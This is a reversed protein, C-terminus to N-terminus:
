ITPFCAKNEVSILLRLYTCNLIIYSLINEKEHLQDIKKINYNFFIYKETGTMIAFYTFAM